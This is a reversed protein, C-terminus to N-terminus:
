ACKTFYLLEALPRLKGPLLEPWVRVAWTNPMRRAIAQPKTRALGIRSHLQAALLYLGRVLVRRVRPRMPPTFTM